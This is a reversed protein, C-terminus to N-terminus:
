RVGPGATLEGYERAGHDHFTKLAQARLAAAAEPEGRAEHLLALVCETRARWLPAEVDQWVEMAAALCAAANEPRGDALHLEGLTRLTVGQGWRDGMAQCVSLVDELSALAQEAQGLRLRAKAQARISYAEMLRDGLRSFIAVAQGATDIAPGYRGTARHFLSMIRLTLAEGRHSGARRYAALSEVLNTWGTAYDGRELRVSAALRQMDGIGSDEGLRRLLPGAQDLFHLSEVLRGAERCAAGLGILSIAQGRPDSLERFAGLAETFHQRAEPYRDQLYRLHGLEALMTVESYRDGAARAATLAAHNIRERAGFRNVGLFSPGLRASAFQCVLAHLGIAAARELGVVLAPQEVEFWAHPAQRVRALLEQPMSPAAVPPRLWGLEESPTDVAVQEALSLWAGLVQAVGALAEDPEEGEARERGYLGVLDHLRYRLGGVEDVRSFDVLHADVLREVVDEALIEGTGTLWAVIPPSFEPVGLYGLRRLARQADADLGRYSLEFGARVELDAIALEDLRRREDALREALLRLPWRQRTALRAGAICLALPLRGCLEAIARAAQEEAAVRETGVIRALLEVAEGTDLVDLDTRCAGSLGGLRNRATVLVACGPGGPLLPRVQRESAADDLLVLVRRDALLRRYLEAREPTSAPVAAAEVGLAKLFRGLVEGADAPADSMGRLEAYLHGDPFAAAVRHAVHVALASKGSGGRGAIVQIPTDPEPTLAAILASAQPARGTFDAPALPLQAPAATHAVEGTPPAALAPDGRLIAQHLTTLEPGPDVGLEEILADRGERFTALADSRRGLRYLATMYQGRLRENAPHRGVLMALEAVLRGHQGLAMDAAIREEVATLRLHELRAAEGALLSGGLGALAPGRWLALAATLLDSTERPASTQRARTLLRDFEDVDLSGSPIRALYGPPHTVIVDTAGHLALSRRLTKVYTQIAARATDPPNDPWIIDILRTIPVIHGHELLLAALLTQPKSGGLPVLSGGAAVEAAGLLRFEM